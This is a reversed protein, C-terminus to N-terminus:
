AAAFQNRGGLEHREEREDWVYTISKVRVESWRHLSVEQEPSDPPEAGALLAQQYEPDAETLIDGRRVLACVLAGCRDPEGSDTFSKAVKRNTTWHIGLSSLDVGGPEVNALGRYVEVLEDAPDLVSM